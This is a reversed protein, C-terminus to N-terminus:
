YDLKESGMQWSVPWQGYTLLFGFVPAKENLEEMVALSVAHLEARQGSKNNLEGFIEMLRDSCLPRGLLCQRDGKSSGDTSWAAKQQDISLQECPVEQLNRLHKWCCTQGKWLCSFLGGAPSCSLYSRANRSYCTGTYVVEMKNPFEKPASGEKDSHKESLVPSM